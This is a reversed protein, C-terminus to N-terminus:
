KVFYEIYTRQEEKHVREYKALLGELDELKDGNRTSFIEDIPEPEWDEGADFGSFDATYVFVNSNRNKMAERARRACEMQYNTM